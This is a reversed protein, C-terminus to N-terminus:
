RLLILSFTIVIQFMCILRLVRRVPFIDGYGLTSGTVVSFYLRDFFKTLLSPKLNEQSIESEEVAKNAEDIKEDLAEQTDKQISPKHSMLTKAGKFIHREELVKDIFGEKESIKQKIKNRILETKIINQINSIGNFDDDPFLIYIIAFFLISVIYITLKPMELIVPLISDM